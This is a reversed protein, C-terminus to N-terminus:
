LVFVLRICTTYGVDTGCACKISYHFLHILNTKKQTAIEISYSQFNKHKFIKVTEPNLTNHSYKMIKIKATLPSQSIENSDLEGCQANLIVWQLWHSLPVHFALCYIWLYWSRCYLKFLEKQNGKSLVTLRGQSHPLADRGITQFYKLIFMSTTHWMNFSSM